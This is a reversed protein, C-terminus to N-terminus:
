EPALSCIHLPSQETSPSLPLSPESAPSGKKSTLVGYLTDACMPLDAKRVQMTCLTPLKDTLGMDRSFRYICM